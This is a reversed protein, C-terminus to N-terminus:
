ENSFPNYLLKHCEPCLPVTVGLQTRVYEANKKAIVRNCYVCQVPLIGDLWAFFRTLINM